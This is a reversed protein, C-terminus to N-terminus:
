PQTAAKLEAVLDIVSPGPLLYRQGAIVRLRENKVADLMDLKRLSNLLEQRVSQELGDRPDIVILWDPNLEILREVSLQPTAAPDNVANRFGAATIADGHLTGPGLYWLVGDGLGDLGILAMATEADPPVPVSLAADLSSALADAAARHNTIEGLQRISAVVEATSLWQLSLTPAIRGLEALPVSVGSDAVILDPALRAIAEYGPTISTGVPPLQLAEPPFQDYDSRGVLLDGAGIEFLAETVAPALSVIRKPSDPYRTDAPQCALLAAALLLCCARFMPSM